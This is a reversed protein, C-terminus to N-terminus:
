PNPSIVVAGSTSAPPSVCGSPLASQGPGPRASPLLQQYTYCTPSPEPKVASGQSERCGALAVLVMGAGLASRAAAIVRVHHGLRGSVAGM